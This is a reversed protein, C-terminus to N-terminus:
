AQARLERARGCIAAAVDPRTMAVLDVGQEVSVAYVEDVTKPSIAIFQEDLAVIANRVRAITEREAPTVPRGDRGEEPMSLFVFGNNGLIAHVGCELLHFHKKARKVLAAQVCVLSGDALRGYRLSRTHLAGSGDNWLEQVEASVLDGEAFFDRMNREDEHTRRRQVAGPLTVASLLLAAETPAGIDVGWRRPRVATIRGVVVDGVEPVYRARLARVAVLKNVREVVGALTSRLGDADVQTGLGRVFGAETDISGGPVVVGVHDLDNTRARARRVPRVAQFRQMETDIATATSM